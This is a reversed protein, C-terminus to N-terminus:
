MIRRGRCSQLLQTVLSFMGSGVKVGTRVVHAWSRVAGAGKGDGETVDQGVDLADFTLTPQNCRAGVHGGWGCKLCVNVQNEHTVQWVEGQEKMFVFSPLVKDKELIMKVTWTGNTVGPLLKKSIYGIEADLVDGYQNM